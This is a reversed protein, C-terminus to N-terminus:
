VCYVGMPQATFGLGSDDCYYLNDLYLIDLDKQIPRLANVKHLATLDNPYLNVTYQRAVKLLESQKELLYASKMQNILDAGAEGYPVIVGQTPADIVQFARAAAMFSQVLYNGLKGPYVRKYAVTAIGNSGLADLLSDTSQGHEFRYAMDGARGDYYYEFYKEIAKPGILDHDFCGPNDAFERLLREAIKQGQCIDQLMGTREEAPDVIWVDGCARLNHRNCRGAAQAISDFGALSRIVSGFDVDVGAEILQTSICLLPGTAAGSKLHALMKDLIAKRHAPCMYTSLHFVPMGTKGRCLAFLDQAMKKTNVIVLCSGAAQAQELAFDALQENGWGGPRRHDHVAVRRLDCFLQRVDPMIENEARKRLAGKAPEVRDILPQTATCLVVTAQCQEVLYNMANCFLHICKVPLTQIEDFVIVSNVLQHMRRAGRTGAGFLIELIQVNTTYIVPADWNESLLKTKWSQAKPLLNSHDELVVSGAEVGVPELVARVERANQDIISTFPIAYIVRDMGNKAAHHLAFRLSAFTKGGGTPVSLSYIGRAGSAKALCHDAIQSRIADLPKNGAFSALKHELRAILEPWSQYQGNQRATAKQPHEFDASNIRDADILCSFLCRVMLGFKFQRINEVTDLRTIASFRQKIGQLLEPMALLQRLRQQVSDDIKGCVEQLHTKHDSKAMRNSFTDTVDDQAPLSLCDILGSHHSAICLAFIQGAVMGIQGRGSLEKWVLQAGATSHDVKGKLGAADVYEEDEDPNLIGVASQLYHQFAASYKGLDHLLGILEGQHPLGMKRALTQCLTAVENLHTAVSQDCKTGPRRHAIYCAGGDQDTASQPIVPVLELVQGDSLDSDANTKDLVV